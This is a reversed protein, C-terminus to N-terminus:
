DNRVVMRWDNRDIARMRAVAMGIARVGLARRVGDMWGYRPRGRGRQGAVEMKWVRKTLREEDMREMHGFWRLVSEDVREAMEKTVGMRRRIEENRLRDLRSVGCMSRLCRMEFVNLRNRENVKLGWTESGYLVTPVVVREYLSKKVAKHLARCKFLGNLVGMVKCGENLRQRVDEEVGGNAAVCSGLYKFSGVEELMEGNLYVSLGGVVGERSCKLVKSKGVNVKLKRRECVRGFETVLVKLGEESEAVLATDDAFLLQSVRLGGEFVVGAIRARAYVERVVGDMYLNFLWPSMVCGQRLGVRVPFWESVESGVRVCARSDEYFSQVGRLLRGGVGYIRCVQWLAKRDIRDYAKELDMFAWYVDKGKALLKDCLQRVTFIQDTCGRATRFGCQEEGIVRETQERIRGILIRGYLKGVVSLLSIGRYNSCEFRDGKGKYLAVVCAGRWDEPVVGGVFCANLLRVLWDLVSEGGRKMYETVCGDLGAAKGEKMEQLAVKVEEKSILRDNEEGFVPMQRRGDVQVIKAERGDEVNLLECFYEAWRKRVDQCEVLLKGNRDKVREERGAENKRVRKVEKWFMKNKEFNETLKRRWKDNAAQKANRVVRKVLSRKVRYCEYAEQCGNQLWVEFARKKELVAAKVEENWWESGKRVGGGVRRMGCVDLANEKLAIKLSEWEEEVGRTPCEKIVEYSVRMKEQFEDQRDSKRLETVRVEKRVKLSRASGQWEGQVRLKAEVLFHDSVGNAEGRYVVVDIVRGFMNRKVLVYDMLAREVVRGEIVRVWTYKKIDKKKFMSNGIVLEHELCMEILRVGNENMGPVGYRGLVRGVMEDGVRANLDGLVVVQCNVGFSAICGSIANWFDNREDDSKEAGPGYVSLFVWVECGWKVKVWMMRSSVEKWEVVREKVRESVLLAVGERARGASVGSVRGIVDGFMMEGRGKLKTENLAFVDLMRRKCLSGIECRKSM